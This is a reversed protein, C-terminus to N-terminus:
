RDKLGLKEFFSLLSPKKFPGIPNAISTGYGYESVPLASGPIGGFDNRGTALVRGGVQGMMNALGYKGSAAVSLGAELPYQEDSQAAGQIAGITSYGASIGPHEGWAKAGEIYSNFPTRRFPQMYNMVPNDLAKALKDPLPAQLLATTSEDQFSQLEKPNPARRTAKTFDTVQARTLSKQIADDVAGMARGPADLYKPLAGANYSGAPGVQRGATWASKVDRLTDGSLLAKLPSLSKREIANAVSAGVGGLISKPLAAGSLLAQQRLANLQSGAAMLKGPIGGPARLAKAGMAGVAALGLGGAAVAGPSVGGSDPPTSAVTSFIEDLEAETPPTPGTITLTQGNPGTVEYTPM